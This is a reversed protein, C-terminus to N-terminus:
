PMKKGVFGTANANLLLLDAANITGDGNVDNAVYGTVFNAADNDVVVMDGSDVIGDQNVDGAYMGFVGSGLDKMANGYAQSASTSFNYDITSGSFSVATASWLEVSNRHKLVIYYNGSVAAPVTNISLTGNINLDIGSFTYATAFPATNNHLEVTIQDAIGDGFQPAGSKQAQNMKGTGSNYLSELYTTLNLTKPAGAPTVDAWTNGVRIEDIEAKPTTSANRLCISGFATASTTGSNNTVQGTPESGGLSTPNVWLSAIDSSAGNLDYKVVVLCPTGYVLDTAFETQTPTGGSVNQIGLRYKGGVVKKIHIRGILTGANSGSGTGFHMFYCNDSFASSLQTSDIVNIIASAYMITNTNVGIARNVDRPTTSNSGPLKVMNGLSTALGPYSLNGSLVDITGTQSNSHTFWNNNSTGSASTSGGINGPVSYDFSEYLLAGAPPSLTTATSSQTPDPLTGLKYDIGSGANTYPYIKFFHQTGSALGTFTYSGSGKLVNQVLTSNAEPTGDVPDVIAAYSDVSGKVLYGDPLVAGIADTWTLSITSITASGATFGTPNNTPEPTLTTFSGEASLATGIANTAYAAFYIPTSAPLTRAQTFLGTATGGEALINDTIKVPTSLSWVTGRELIPSGGDSTINGGLVASSSTISAVTPSIIVPITGSTTTAVSVMVPVAQLITFAEAVFYVNYTTSSSLGIVSAVYETAGAACTITGALNGAVPTGTADQANKVQLSTPATAGNPLVVFYATGASSINAKATFVTQSADEAKPWGSTWIPADTTMDSLSRPTIQIVALNQGVLAIMNQPAVPIATGIYDSEAFLTRFRGTGSIDGITYDTSAVYSGTPSTFSVSPISVLKAQDASTLSSLTKVIPTIPNGTSTAAGPDLLPVFELLSNFLTLTGTLGTVGDGIIYDTVIINSPDDVVIAATADQIYLQNRGTAPRAYTVIGEGTLKYVTGDTLGARLAAINAVDIPFRYLASSIGSPTMGAFYAKAKITTTVSVPIPNLPDFIASTEDPDNGNTTYHITAGPTTCSISVSQPTFYNGSAPNFTPSAVQNGVSPAVADAWTTAVRIGDVKIKQSANFQRLCVSGLIAVTGETFTSNPSTPETASYANLVYLSTVKSTIDYKLVLLTPVGVSIAAWTTPATSSSVAVGDGTSNVYVKGWFVVSTTPVPNTSFHLFYGTSNPASTQIIFAAYVTGSSQPAFTRNVDEGTNDVNAAGGIASGAYGAFSLGSTVDIPTTGIGSHATWGNASLFSGLTYNFNEELLLQAKGTGPLLLFFIVAFVALKSQKLAHLKQKM